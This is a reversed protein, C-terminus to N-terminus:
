SRIKSLEFDRSVCPVHVLCEDSYQCDRSRLLYCLLGLNVDAHLLKQYETFGVEECWNLTSTVPDWYGKQNSEGYSISPLHTMISLHAHNRSHSNRLGQSNSTPFESRRLRSGGFARAAPKEGTFKWWGFKGCHDNWYYTLMEARHGTTGFYDIPRAKQTPKSEPLKECSLVFLACLM